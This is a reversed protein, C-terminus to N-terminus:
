RADELSIFWGNKATIWMTILVDDPVDLPYITCEPQGDATSVISAEFEAHNAEPRPRRDASDLNRSSMTLEAVGVAAAPCPM